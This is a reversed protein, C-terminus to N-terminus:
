LEEEDSCDVIGRIHLIDGPGRGRLEGEVILCLTGPESHDKEARDELVIFVVDEGFVEARSYRMVTGAKRAPSLKVREIPDIM